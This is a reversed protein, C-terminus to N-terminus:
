IEDRGISFHIREEVIQNITKVDEDDWTGFHKLMRQRKTSKTDIPKTFTILVEYKGTVPIPEMPKFINGDFVANITQM